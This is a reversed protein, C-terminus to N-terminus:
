EFWQKVFLFSVTHIYICFDTIFVILKSFRTIVVKNSFLKLLQYLSIKKPYDM